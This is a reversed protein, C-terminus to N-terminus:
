RSVERRLRRLSVLSIPVLTLHCMALAVTSALDFGAPLTMIAITAVALTPAGIMAIGFLAPFRRGLIAMLVLGALLPVVTFGAVTAADVEFTQGARTFTFGGGAARGAFYVLLNTVLALAVSAAVIAPSRWRRQTGPPAPPPLAASNM